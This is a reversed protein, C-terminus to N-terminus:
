SNLSFCVSHFLASFGKRIKLLIHLISIDGRSLVSICITQDMPDYFFCPSELFIDVEAKNVISYAKVPHIVVLQPFNKFIHSYWVM